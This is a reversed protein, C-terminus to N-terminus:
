RSASRMADFAASMAALARDRRARQDRSYLRSRLAEKAVRLTAGDPAWWNHVAGVAPTMDSRGDWDVTGPLGVRILPPDWTVDVRCPGLDPIDVTLLEHVEILDTADVLDAREALVDPVLPGVCFLPRSAVGVAALEEALLAHKSACSGCGDARASAATPSSPWRYPLAQVRAVVAAIPESM